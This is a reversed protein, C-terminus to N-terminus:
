KFVHCLWCCKLFSFIVPPMKNENNYTIINNIHFNDKLVMIQVCETQPPSLLVCEFFEVSSLDQGLWPLFPLMYSQTHNILYTPINMKCWLRVQLAKIPVGIFHWFSGVGRIWWVERKIAARQRSSGLRLQWRTLSKLLNITYLSTKGLYRWVKITGAM